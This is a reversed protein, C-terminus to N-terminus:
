ADNDSLVRAAADWDGCFRDFVKQGAATKPLVSGRVAGHDATSTQTSSSSTVCFKTMTGRSVLDEANPRLMAEPVFSISDSITFSPKRLCKPSFMTSTPPEDVILAVQSRAMRTSTPTLSPSPLSYTSQTLRGSPSSANDVPAEPLFTKSPSDITIQVPQFESKMRSLSTVLSTSISETLQQFRSAMTSLTSSVTSPELTDSAKDNADCVTVTPLATTEQSSSLVARWTSELKQLAINLESLSLRIRFAETKRMGEAERLESIANIAMEFSPTSGVPDVRTERKKSNSDLETM